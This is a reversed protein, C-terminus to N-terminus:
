PSAASPPALPSGGATRDQTTLADRETAPPNSATNHRQSPRGRGLIPAEVYRWSLWAMLVPAAVMAALSSRGLKEWFVSILIYHWLYLGYSIRGFWRLVRNSLWEPPASVAGWIALTSLLGVGITGWLLRRDDFHLPLSAAMLLGFVALSAVNRGSKAIRGEHLGIALVCGLLPAFANSDTGFYVRPNDAGSVLLGMRLLVLAAALSYSAPWRWRAPLVAILIPWMLYFHEEIALSWTHAMHALEAGAIAAFNAVYALAPWTRDWWRHPEDLITIQLALYGVILLGLAPLLRKARRIYFRRLDITHTRDMEHLLVTTILFGSIVFFLVVGYAGTPFLRIPLHFAFVLLIAIGRLGDVAAWHPRAPTIDTGAATM